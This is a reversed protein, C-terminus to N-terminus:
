SGVKLILGMFTEVETPEFAQFKLTPGNSDTVFWGLKSFVVNYKM